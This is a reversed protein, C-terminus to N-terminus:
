VVAVISSSSSLALLLLLSRPLYPGVLRYIRVPRQTHQRLMFIGRACLLVNYSIRENSDSHSYM